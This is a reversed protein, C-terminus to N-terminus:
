ARGRRGGRLAAGVIALAASPLWILVIEAQMIDLGQQTFFRRPSIPSVPIPGWPLFHRTGDFPAFLAVGPGGNTMADLIGHSATGLFLVVWLGGRRGHWGPGRFVTWALLAALVAAFPLSHSLGRHGLPHGWPVGLWHVAVDSDPVVAALAGAVGLRGVAGPTRILTAITLCPWPTRSCPLCPSEPACSL